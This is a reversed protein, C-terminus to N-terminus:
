GDLLWDILNRHILGKGLPQVFQDLSLVTKPFNDDVAELSRTEREYTSESMMTQTVQFYEINGGRRATFDVEWDRYCGITVSYGRRRLELYVINELQRSIDPGAALGLEANRLGTDAVYYKEQTKLLRGGRIDYRYVKYILYADEMAQIYRRVTAPSADISKAISNSSTTNGINSMVSRVVNTFRVFDRVDLRQQIDKNIVTSNIGTLLDNNFQEDRDPDVVPLAGFWIYQQFRCYRDEGETTPYLELYEKFSLPLMPIEVYRGSLYTSLESSLLYANSGTIYIDNDGDVMLSNIAREWGIVRQIEDLFIYMRGEGTREDVWMGLDEFTVVDNMTRSEFNAYLINTDPVGEQRLIDMYQSILTSKGCRRIGTIVKVIDTDDRGENLRDLYGKRLVQRAGM